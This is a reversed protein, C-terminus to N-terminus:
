NSVEMSNLWDYVENTTIDSLYIVETVKCFHNVHLNYDKITRERLRSVKMQMSVTKLAKEVTFDKRKPKPSEGVVMNRLDVSVDFIGTKKSM